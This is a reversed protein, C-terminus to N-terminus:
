YLSSHNQVSVPKLPLCSLSNLGHKQSNLSYQLHKGPEPILVKNILKHVKAQMPWMDTNTCQPRSYPIMYRTDPVNQHYVAPNKNM